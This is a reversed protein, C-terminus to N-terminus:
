DEILGSAREFLVFLSLGWSGCTAIWTPCAPEFLVFLSLGWSSLRCCDGTYPREFLVFLSLGWSSVKVSNFQEQTWIICIFKTRLFM